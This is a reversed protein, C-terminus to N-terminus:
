RKFLLRELLHWTENDTQNENGLSKHYQADKWTGLPRRLTEM